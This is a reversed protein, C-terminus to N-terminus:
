PSRGLTQCSSLCPDHVCLCWFSVGGSTSHQCATWAEPHSAPDAPVEVRVHGRQLGPCALVTNSTSPSLACLGTCCVAAISLSPPSDRVVERNMCAGKPNAVTDVHHLLNLDAFNYVYIKNLLVVVVRCLLPACARLSSPVVPCARPARVCELVPSAAVSVACM